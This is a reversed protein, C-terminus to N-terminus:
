LRKRPLAPNFGIHWLLKREPVNDEPMRCRSVATSRWVLLAPM